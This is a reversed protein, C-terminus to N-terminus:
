QAAAYAENAEKIYQEGGAAMWQKVFEDYFDLPKDGTIIAIQMEDYLKNLDASYKTWSPVNGTFANRLGNEKFNYLNGFKISYPERNGDFDEFTIATLVTHGGEASLKNGDTWDPKQVAENKENYDWMEGKIGLYAALHNDMSTGSIYDIVQMLKAYKAPDDQLQIGFSCLDTGVLQGQPMAREGFPGMPPQPFSLKKAADPNIKNMEQINAFAIDRDNNWHYYGGHTTMGIRSNIFSHSLAWYGGQNEGTIFEPDLVGDKYWQALKGLADKMHPRLYGLNITGDSEVYWQNLAGYAGYVAIIGDKSLGYTDAKGNKDPDDTAFKRLMTEFEDFTEAEKAIGVNSMWDGRVVIPSRFQAHFNFTGAIGYRKGDITGYKNYEKHDTQFRQYTNPMNTKYMDDTIEALIDQDVYKQLRVFDNTKMRDPVEGSALKLNLIEDWKNNEINVIRIDVNFMQNFYEIVKPHEEPPKIPALQYAVWTYTYREGTAPAAPAATAAAPAAATAAPSAATAAPAAPQTAAPPTTGGGTCGALLLLVLAACTIAPLLRRKKAYMHPAEEKEDTPFTM